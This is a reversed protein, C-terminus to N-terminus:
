LHHDVAYRKGGYSITGDADEVLREVQFEAGALPRQSTDVKACDTPGRGSLGGGRQGHCWWATAPPPGATWMTTWIFGAIDSLNLTDAIATDVTFSTKTGAQTWTITMGRYRDYLSKQAENTSDSYTSYTQAMTVLRDYTSAM